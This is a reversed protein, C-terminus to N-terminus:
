AILRLGGDIGIAQGNVYGAAESALFALVPSCDDYATGLRRGPIRATVPDEKGANREISRETSVIPLFTNTTIGFQAWEQSANRTLAMIAGKAMAYPAFGPSGDLAILSSTNIIRGYRQRRMHPFCKQMFLLSQLPGTVYADLLGEPTTKLLGVHDEMGGQAINALIDIRGFREIAADVVRTIDAEEAVDCTVALAKGGKAEVEQVLTQLNELRRACAVVAAGEEAFRRACGRGVGSSAGTVIAVRGELIGM